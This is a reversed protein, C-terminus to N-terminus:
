AWVLPVSPAAILGPYAKCTEGPAIQFFPVRRLFEGLAIRLERRALHVGLCLHPGGAFSFHRNVRRDFRVSRPDDFQAPDFNGVNNACLIYDGKKIQVGRVEHDKIVLRASNVLPETRLFEEVANNILDPNARLTRQLEPELALRRFMLATTAAVTDLGGIWLFTVTGM